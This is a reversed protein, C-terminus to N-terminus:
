HWLDAYEILAVNIPVLVLLALVPVLITYNPGLSSARLLIDGITNDTVCVWSSDFV